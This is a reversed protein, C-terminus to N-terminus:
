RSRALDPRELDVLEAQAAIPLAAEMALSSGSAYMRGDGAHRCRQSQEGDNHDAVVNTWSLISLNM